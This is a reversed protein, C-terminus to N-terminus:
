SGDGPAPVESAGAALRAVLPALREDFRERTMALVHCDHYAGAWFRYGRLVGEEEFGAQLNSALSEANYDYVLAYIKRLPYAGFLEAMFAAGAMGALGTRRFAPTMCLCLKCHLDFPHYAYSFLLGALEGTRECRLVRVDHWANRLNDDLWDAFEARSTIPVRESFLPQTDPDCYLAFVDEVDADADLCRAVYGPLRM